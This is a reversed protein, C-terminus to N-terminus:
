HLNPKTRDDTVSFSPQTEGYVTSIRVRIFHMQSNDENENMKQASRPGADTTLDSKSIVNTPLSFLFYLTHM